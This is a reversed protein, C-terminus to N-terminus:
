LKENTTRAAAPQSEALNNRIADLAQRLRYKVTSTAVNMSDATEQLTLGQYYHLHVTERQDPPLNDAFRYVVAAADQNALAIDPAVDLGPQAGWWELSPSCWKGNSRSWDAHIHWAIGHLWSSFSSRAAYTPLAKWARCFTQQTLDAADAENGCLRRLFGYVKAYFLEVLEEAAGTEGSCFRRALTEARTEM